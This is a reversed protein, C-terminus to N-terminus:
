SSMLKETGYRHLCRLITLDKLRRSVKIAVMLKGAPIHSVEEFIQHKALSANESAIAALWNASDPRTLISCFSSPAESTINVNDIEATYAFAVLSYDKENDVFHLSDRYSSLAPTVKINRGSRSVSPM